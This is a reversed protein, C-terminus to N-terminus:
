ERYFRHCGITTYYTANNVIWTGQSLAPAFFYICDDVVNAGELCLKAAIVASQTPEDYITGNETPEFQVAYKRDFIVEKITNPYDKHKVRNMVINGVAIQGLLSEGGSEASIVRSLWYLEQENYSAQAPRETNSNLRATSTGVDWSLDGGIAQELLRLPLYMKGDRVQVGDEVYLARGNVEIYLAGPRASMSLQPGTLYANTGDWSLEYDTLKSFSRLTVYSIGHEIWGQEQNLVTGNVEVQAGQAPILMATMLALAAAAMKWQRKM